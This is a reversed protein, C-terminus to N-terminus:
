GGRGRYANLVAARISEVRAPAVSRISAREDILQMAQEFRRERARPGWLEKPGIRKSKSYKNSTFPELCKEIGEIFGPPFQIEQGEFLLPQQAVRITRGSPLVADITLMFYYTGDAPENELILHELQPRLADPQRRYRVTVTRRQSSTKVFPFGAEDFEEITTDAPFQVAAGGELVQGDISYRYTCFPYDVLVDHSQPLFARWYQIPGEPICVVRTTPTFTGPIRSSPDATSSRVIVDYPSFKLTGSGWAYVIYWSGGLPSSSQRIDDQRTEHLSAAILTDEAFTIDGVGVMEDHDVAQVVFSLFGIPDLAFSERIAVDIALERLENTLQQRFIAIQRNMFNRANVLFRPIVIAVTEGPRPMSEDIVGALDLGGFFENVRVRLRDTVADHIANIVSSATADEELLAVFSIFRGPLWGEVVFGNREVRFPIPRLETSYNGLAPPIRFNSGSVVGEVGLDGHGGPTAVVTLSPIFRTPAAPNQRLTTGDARVFYTWVYPEDEGSVDTPTICHLTHMSTELLFKPM